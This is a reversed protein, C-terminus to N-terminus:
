LCQMMRVFITKVIVNLDNHLCNERTRHLTQIIIIFIKIIKMIIFKLIAQFCLYIEQFIM